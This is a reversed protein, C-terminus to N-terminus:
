FKVSFCFVALYKRNGTFRLPRVELKDVNAPIVANEKEDKIHKRNVVAKGCIKTFASNETSFIPKLLTPHFTRVPDTNDDM